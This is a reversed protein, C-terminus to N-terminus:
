IVPVVYSCFSPLGIFVIFRQAKQTAASDDGENKGADNVTKEDGGGEDEAASPPSNSVEPSSPVQKQKKKAPEVIGGGEVELDIGGDPRADATQTGFKRKRAEKRKADAGM